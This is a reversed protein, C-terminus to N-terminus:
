GHNRGDMRQAPEPKTGIGYYALHRIYRCRRCTRKIGKATRVTHAGALPHGRKCHSQM